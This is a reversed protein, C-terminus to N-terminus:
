SFLYLIYQLFLLYKGEFTLSDCRPNDGGDISFASRVVCIYSRHTKPNHRTISVVENGLDHVYVQIYM